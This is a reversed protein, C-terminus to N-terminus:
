KVGLKLELNNLKVTGHIVLLQKGKRALSSWIASFKLNNIFSVLIVLGTDNNRFCVHLVCVLAAGFRKM